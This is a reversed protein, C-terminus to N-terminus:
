HTRSVDPRVSLVGDRGGAAGLQADEVSLENGQPREIVSRIDLGVNRARGCQQARLCVLDVITEIRRLTAAIRVPETRLVVGVQIPQKERDGRFLSSFHEGATDGILSDPFCHDETTTM